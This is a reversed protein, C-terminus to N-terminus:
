HKFFTNASFNVFYKFENGDDMQLRVADKYRSFWTIQRKAYRRTARKLVDAAESLTCEGKIYPLIEKYGIAASATTGEELAGEYFLRETEEVLGDAIMADVREDIRRYLAARDAFELVILHVNYKGDRERSQADAVSKPMGTEHYIELARMVRKVNNPHISEASEPDAERLMEYLKDAGESDLIRQLKTRYEPVRDTEEYSHPYMLGDLYLGTGGVFLPKKGRSLIDEVCREAERVYAACSFKEHPECIDIMHHPVREREERTPKATGVDMGKYIQMSDMSIIECGEREALVLSLSSKGSATPGAIVYIDKKEM